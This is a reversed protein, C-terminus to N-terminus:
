DFYISDDAFAMHIIFDTQEVHEVGCPEEFDVTHSEHIDIRDAGFM